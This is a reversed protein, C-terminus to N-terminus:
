IMLEHLIRQTDLELLHLRDSPEPASDVSQISAVVTIDRADLLQDLASWFMEILEPARLDDVDDIVVIRPNETLALVVGLLKRALPDLASLPATGPVTEAPLGAIDHAHEIVQNLQDRVPTVRSRNVWLGFSRISLREAILQDVTLNDELENVGRTEGLAVSKRVATTEQPLLYGNVRLRGTDFPMRGAIALLLASKGSGSPGHVVLRDGAPLSISVDNYVTGQSGALTLASASVAETSDRSPWSELRVRRHLGEGEVDVHPLRTDLFRPM